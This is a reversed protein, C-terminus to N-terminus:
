TVEVASRGAIGEHWIVSLANKERSSMKGVMAFTEHFVSIRRTFVVTKGGPMRPLMIIKQLDVSRVVSYVEEEKEGDLCYHERGRLARYHHVEWKQCTECGTTDM